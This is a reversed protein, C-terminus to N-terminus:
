IIRILFMGLKVNKVFLIIVIFWVNKLKSLLQLVNIINYQITIKKVNSVLGVIVKFFIIRVYHKKQTHTLVNM